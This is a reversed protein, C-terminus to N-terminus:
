VYMYQKEEEKRNYNTVPYRIYTGTSCLLVRHNIWGIFLRKGGSIGFEWGERGGGGLRGEKSKARYTGLASGYLPISPVLASLDTCSPPNTQKVQYLQYDLSVPLALCARSAKM